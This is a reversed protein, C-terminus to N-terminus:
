TSWTPSPSSRPRPLTTSSSRSSNSRRRCGCVNVAHALTGLWRCACALLTIRLLIGASAQQVSLHLPEPGPPGALPPLSCHAEGETHVVRARQPLGVLADRQSPHACHSCLAAPVGDVAHPDRAPLQPLRPSHAQARSVDVRSPRAGPQGQPGRLAMSTVACCADSACAGRCRPDHLASPLATAGPVARPCDNICM